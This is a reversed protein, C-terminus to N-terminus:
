KSQLYFIIKNIKYLYKEQWRDKYINRIKLNHAIIYSLIYLNM